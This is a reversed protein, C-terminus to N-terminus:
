NLKLQLQKSIPHQSYYFIARGSRALLLFFGLVGCSALICPCGSLIEQKQYEISVIKIAVNNREESKEVPCLVIVYLLVSWCKILKQIETVVIIKTFSYIVFLLKLQKFLEYFYNDRFTKGRGREIEGDIYYPYHRM